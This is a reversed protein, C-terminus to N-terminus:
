KLGELILGREFLRFEKKDLVRGRKQSFAKMRTKRYVRKIAPIFWYGFFKKKGKLLVFYGRPTKRISVVNDIYRKFAEKSYDNSQNYNFEYDLLEPKIESLKRM